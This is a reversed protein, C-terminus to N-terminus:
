LCVPNKALGAVSELKGNEDAAWNVTLTVNCPLNKLVREAERAPLDIDFKETRLARILIREDTGVPFTSKIIQASDPDDWRADELFVPEDENDLMAIGLMVGEYNVAVFILLALSVFGLVYKLFKAIKM